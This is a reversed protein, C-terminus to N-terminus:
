GTVVTVTVTAGSPSFVLHVHMQGPGTVTVIVCSTPLRTSVSSDQFYSPLSGPASRGPATRTTARISTSLAVPYPAYARAVRASVAFGTTAKRHRSPSISGGLSIRRRTSAGSTITM